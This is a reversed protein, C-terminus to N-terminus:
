GITAHVDIWEGYNASRPSPAGDPAAGGRLERVCLDILRLDAEVAAIREECIKKREALAERLRESAVDGRGLIDRTAALAKALHSKESAVEGRRAMLRDAMLAMLERSKVGQINQRLELMAQDLAFSFLSLMKERAEGDGEAGFEDYQARRRPDTLCDFAAKLKEFAGASGGTDPHADRAKRRFARKIAEEPADRSVGLISYYNENM